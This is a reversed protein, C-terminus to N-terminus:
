KSSNIDYIIPAAVFISSYTGFITGLLMLTLFGYLAEPGFFLMCVLIIVLTLSTYISRRVSVNIADDFIQKDTRTDSSRKERYSSRIRDLIVITDNISYGLITLTATVFFTDIKLAPIILGLFIFIGAAIIVDHILPAIIVVRFTLGSTGEISKHLAFMLYLCIVLLCM